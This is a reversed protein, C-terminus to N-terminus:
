IKRNMWITKVRTAPAPLTPVSTGTIRAAGPTPIPPLESGANKRNARTALVPLRIATIAPVRRPIASLETILAVSKNPIIRILVTHVIKQVDCITNLAVPHTIWIAKVVNVGKTLKKKGNPPM